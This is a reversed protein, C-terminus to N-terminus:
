KRSKRSSRKKSKRKKSSRRKSNCGCDVSSLGHNKKSCGAVKHGATYDDCSTCYHSDGEHRLSKNSCRPCRVGCKPAYSVHSWEADYPHDKGCKPCHAM